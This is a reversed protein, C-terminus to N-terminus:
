YQNDKIETRDVGILGIAERATTNGSRTSGPNGDFAVLDPLCHQEIGENAM